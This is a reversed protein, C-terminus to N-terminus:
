APAAPPDYNLILLERGTVKREKRGAAKDARSMAYRGSYKWALPIVRWPSGRYLARVEPRDDYSVMVKAPTAALLDRLAM